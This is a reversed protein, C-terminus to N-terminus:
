ATRDTRAEIHGDRIAEVLFAAHGRETQDAYAVAFKEIAEDFADMVQPPQKGFLVARV